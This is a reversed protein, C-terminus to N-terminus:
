HCDSGSNAPCPDDKKIPTPEEVPPHQKPPGVKVPEEPVVPPAVPLTSVKPPTYTSGDVFPSEPAQWRNYDEMVEPPPVYVPGGATLGGAYAASCSSLLLATIITLKM